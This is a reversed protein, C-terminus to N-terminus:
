ESKLKNNLLALTKKLSEVEQASTKYKKEYSEVKEVLDGKEKLEAEIAIKLESLEIQANDLESERKDLTAYLVDNKEKASNLEESYKKIENYNYTFGLSSVVFVVGIVTGKLHKKM